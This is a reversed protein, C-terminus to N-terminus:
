AFIFPRLYTGGWPLPNNAAQVGPNQWQSRQMVKAAETRPVEANQPPVEARGMGSTGQLWASDEVPSQPLQPGTVQRSGPIVGPGQRGRAVERM